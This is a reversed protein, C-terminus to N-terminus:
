NQESTTWGATWDNGPEIAGIHSVADFFAGAPAVGGSAAPSGSMLDFNPASQNYPDVIM